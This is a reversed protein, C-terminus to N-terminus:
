GPRLRGALAARIVFDVARVVADGHKPGLLSAHGAGRINEAYGSRSRHAPEAQMRKWWAQARGATVVAVPMERDFAGLARAQAGDALWCNLERASWDNHSPSAFAHLKEAHAPGSLGIADGFLPAAVASLMFKSGARAIGALRGAGNVFRRASPRVLAEPPVTRRSATGVVTHPWRLTFVQVHVAAMSHGVLVYPPAEGLADLLIKLDDTIADSDRPEPGPESYGLGARDYTLVRMRKALVGQIAAFDAACGFAGAEYIVLPQGEAREGEIVVRLSRGGIDVMRGRPPAIVAPLRTRSKPAVVPLKAAM